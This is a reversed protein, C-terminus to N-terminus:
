LSRTSPRKLIAACDNVDGDGGGDDDDDDESDAVKKREECRSSLVVFM